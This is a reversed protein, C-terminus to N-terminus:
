RKKQKKQAAREANELLPDLRKRNGKELTPKEVQNMGPEGCGCIAGVVAAM